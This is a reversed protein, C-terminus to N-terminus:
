KRAEHGTGQVAGAVDYVGTSHIPHIFMFNIGARPVLEPWNPTNTLDTKDVNNVFIYILLTNQLTNLLYDVRFVYKCTINYQSFLSYKPIYIHIYIWVCIHMCYCSTFLLCSYSSSWSPCIHPHPPLFLFSSIYNYGWINRFKFFFSNQHYMFWCLWDFCLLFNPLMWQVKYLVLMINLGLIRWMLFTRQSFYERFKLLARVPRHWWIASHCSSYGVSTDVLWLCILLQLQLCRYDVHEPPLPLLFTERKLGARDICAFELDALVIYYSGTEFCIFM